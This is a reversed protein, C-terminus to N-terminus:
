EEIMTLLNMIIKGGAGPMLRTAMVEYGGEPFAADTCIYGSSGNCHTVVMTGPVTSQEKIQMGIETMVEGSIGAFVFGGVKLVTLRVEVDDAPELQEPPQRNELRKKGPLLLTERKVSVGEVPKTEIEPLIELVEQAVNHGVAKIEMFNDNPGYIPNIDGSAGATVAVVPEKGLEENMYMAALGPWDGTIRYNDQGNATGHCAWNVFVSLLAGDMSEIKLVDVDHDCPGQQNRGLWVSGDAFRARRNINMHCSGKGKGIRVARLDGSAREAIDVLQKELFAVYRTNAETLEEGYTRVSPAGHTHTATILINGAPIGTNEMIMRSLKDAQKSSFGIVDCTIMLAETTGDSFCIAAAYLSDHIGTSPTERAAYGSMMVPEEPNINVRAFGMKVEQAQTTQISFLGIILLSLFDKIHM